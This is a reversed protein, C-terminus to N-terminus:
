VQVGFEGARQVAHVARAARILSKSPVCGVNLCDGGMLHREILAVKAGLGAAAAATILGATGAGIVVLNYRGSPTPNVYPEPHVNRLHQLNYEDLPAILPVITMRAG